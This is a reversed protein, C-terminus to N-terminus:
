ISVVPCPASCIIPYSHSGPKKPEEGACSRGIVLLGADKEKAAASIAQAVDGGSVVLLEAHVGSDLLLARLRELAGEHAEEHWQFMYREPLGPPSELVVHILTLKAGLESAFVGAWHVVNSSQIGFNVACM